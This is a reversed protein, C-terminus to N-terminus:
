LRGARCGLGRTLHRSVRSLIVINVIELISEVVRRCSLTKSTMIMLRSAVTLLLARCLITRLIGM